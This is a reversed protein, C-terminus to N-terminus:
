AGSGIFETSLQQMKIDELNVQLRNLVDKLSGSPTYGVRRSIEEVVSKPYARLAAFSARVEPISIGKTDRLRTYLRVGEDIVNTEPQVTTPPTQLTGETPKLLQKVKTLNDVTKTTSQQGFEALITRLQANNLGDLGNLPEFSTGARIARIQEILGPVNIPTTVVKKTQGNKGHGNMGTGNAPTIAKQLLEALKKVHHDPMQRLVIAAEDFANCADQKLSAGLGKKLSELLDALQHTTM